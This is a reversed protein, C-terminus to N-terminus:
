NRTNQEKHNYFIMLFQMRKKVHKNNKKLRETKEVERIDLIVEKKKPRM